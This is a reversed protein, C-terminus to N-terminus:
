DELQSRPTMIKNQDNEQVTLDKFTNVLRQKINMMYVKDPSVINTEGMEILSQPGDEFLIQNRLLELPVM